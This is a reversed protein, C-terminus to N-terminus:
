EFKFSIEFNTKISSNMKFILQFRFNTKKLKTEWVWIQWIIIKNLFLQYKAETDNFKLRMNSITTLLQRNYFFVHFVAPNKTSKEM